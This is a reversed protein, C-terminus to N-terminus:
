WVRANGAFGNGSILALGGGACSGRPPNVGLVAHPATPPLEDSAASTGGDVDINLGGGSAAADPDRDSQRTFPADARSLCAPAFVAGLLALTGALGLPRGWSTSIRTM